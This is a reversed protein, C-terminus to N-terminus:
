NAVLDNVSLKSVYDKGAQEISQALGGFDFAWRYQKSYIWDFAEKETVGRDVLANIIANALIYSPNDFAYPKRSANWLKETYDKM